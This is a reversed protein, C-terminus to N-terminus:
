CDDMEDTIVLVEEDWEGSDDDEEQEAEDIKEDWDELRFVHMEHVFCCCENGMLSLFVRMM